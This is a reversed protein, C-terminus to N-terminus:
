SNHQLQSNIVGALDVGNKQSFQNQCRCNKRTITFVEKVMKLGAEGPMLFVTM